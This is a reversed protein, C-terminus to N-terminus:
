VLEPVHLHALVLDFEAVDLFEVGADQTSRARLYDAQDRTAIMAERSEFAVSTVGAGKSRDVMLSASVFGDLSEIQPLLEHRYWEVAGDVATPAVRSWAARVCTGPHTPHTRHMSAIEWESVTPPTQSGMITAGQERLPAVPSGSAAMAEQTAWSTTTIGLGSERDVILSLGVCGDMERVTPWVQDRVFDIGKDVTQPTAYIRTSRAWM